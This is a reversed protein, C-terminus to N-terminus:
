FNEAYIKQAIHWNEEPSKNIDSEHQYYALFSIREHIDRKAYEWNKIPDTYGHTYKIFAEEATKEEIIEEVYAEDWNQCADDPVSCAEKDVHKFYARERVKDFFNEAM